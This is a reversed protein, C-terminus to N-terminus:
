IHILSLALANGLWAYGRAGVDLVDLGDDWDGGRRRRFVRLRWPDTRSSRCACWLAGDPTATLSPYTGKEGFREEKTWETIDLPRVTRRYKFPHHHTGYVIHLQGADDMTLAPGSHNDVGKGVTVTDGWTQTRTDYVKARIDSVHDLWSVFVRDNRTVIKNSMAYATARTSGRTSLTTRSLIRVQKGGQVPPVSRGKSRVTVAVALLVVTLAALMPKGHM